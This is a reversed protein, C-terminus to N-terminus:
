QNHPRHNKRTTNRSELKPGNESPSNLPTSTRSSPTSSAPRATPQLNNTPMPSTRRSLDTQQLLSAIIALHDELSDFKTTNAKETDDQRQLLTVTLTKTAEEIITQNAEFLQLAKAVSEELSCNLSVLKTNITEIEECKKGLVEHLDKNKNELAEIRLKLSELENQLNNEPNRLTKHHYRCYDGFKCREFEKFFKCARVHRNECSSIDCDKVDCNKEVHRSRCTQGFKCFGFKNFQCVNQNIM